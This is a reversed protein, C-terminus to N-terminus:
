KLRSASSSLVSSVSNSDAEDSKEIREAVRSSQNLRLPRIRRGNTRSADREDAGANHKTGVDQLNERVKLQVCAPRLPRMHRQHGNEDKNDFFFPLKISM